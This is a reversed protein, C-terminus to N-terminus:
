AAVTLGGTRRPCNCQFMVIFQNCERWLLQDVVFLLQKFGQPLGRDACISIPIFWGRGIRCLGNRLFAMHKIAQLGASGRHTHSIKGGFLWDQQHVLFLVLIASVQCTLLTPLLSSLVRGELGM